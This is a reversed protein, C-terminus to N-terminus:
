CKFNTLQGLGNKSYTYKHTVVIIDTNERVSHKIIIHITIVNQNINHHLVYSYAIKHLRSIYHITDSSSVIVTWSLHQCKQCVKMSWKPHQVQAIVKQTLLKITLKKCFRYNTYSAPLLKQADCSLNGWEEYKSLLMVKIVISRTLNHCTKKEWKGYKTKCPHLIIQPPYLLHIIIHLNSSKYWPLGFLLCSLLVTTGWRTTQIRWANLM